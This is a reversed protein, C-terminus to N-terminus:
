PTGGHGRLHYKSQQKDNRKADHYNESKACQGLANIAIFGFRPLFYKDGRRPELDACQQTRFVHSPLLNAAIGPQSLDRTRASWGAVEVELEILLCAGFHIPGCQTAADHSSLRDTPAMTFGPSRSKRWTTSEGWARAIAIGTAVPPALVPIKYGPSRTSTIRVCVKLFSGGSARRETPSVTTSFKRTNAISASSDRGFPVALPKPRVTVRSTDGSCASLTFTAVSSPLSESVKRLTLAVLTTTDEGSPSVLVAPTLGIQAPSTEGASPSAPGAFVTATSCGITSTM